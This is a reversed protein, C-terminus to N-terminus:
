QAKIPESPTKAENKLKQLRNLAENFQEQTQQLYVMLADADKEKFEELELATNLDLVMSCKHCFKATPPNKEKCRVCAKPHLPNDKVIEAFEEIGNIALLKNDIDAGSLHVYTAAMSSDQEWGAFIKLEQESLNKALETLRSHRFIYPYVRKKLKAKKTIRRLVREMVRSSYPVHSTAFVRVWLPSVPNDRDPHLEFWQQLYVASNILRIRRMGTKGDVRVTAGYKDFLVDKLRLNFFEEPRAASEYAVAMMAKDQVSNGANILALVDKYTLLDEPLKRKKDKKSNLRLWKTTDPEVGDYLWRFFSKISANVHLMTVSSLHGCEGAKLKAQFKEFDSKSIKKFDKNLSGLLLLLSRLYFAKTRPASGKASHHALFGKVTKRNGPTTDFENFRKSFSEFEQLKRDIM